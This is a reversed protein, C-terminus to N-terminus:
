AVRRRLDASRLASRFLPGIIDALQEPRPIAAHAASGFVRRLEETDTGAGITLCVCGTGQRRVESLARRADAAGYAREYGHDYALGDSLVVLLRRSTGAKEAMVAAGHRIAAGLRSYAGPTLAALRQVAPAGFPEEFRKVPLVHVSGRGQSQFGYLAVRDGLEHLAATLAHAALVQQEHVTRGAAGPESVSGSIDLLVLVALDRRRRQSEIYVAGDNATGALTDVRAAVAADIDIDDGQAQRRRRDLGIGLRTLPRRLAHVDPRQPAKVDRDPVDIEEVTCWDPRYRRQRVDWEPYTVGVADDPTEDYSPGPTTSLVSTAGRTGSRTRHTASDAGPQGAGGLQRVRSMMRQLLKGVAGGGGVPSSFPDLAQMDSEDIADDDLEALDHKQDKRAIHRGSQGPQASDAPTRAMHRPRLAGFEAPPDPVPDGGLAMDLSALASDAAPMAAPDLLPRMERPLLDENCALARRGEVALYRQALTARRGLRRLIEPELSGAALLSAQVALCRRQFAPETAADVYVAVGDTWAPQGPGTQRVAVTRGALASAFLTHVDLGPADDETEVADPEGIKAEILITSWIDTGGYLGTSLSDVNSVFM